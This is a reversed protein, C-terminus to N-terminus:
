VFEPLIDKDVSLIYRYIIVTIVIEPDKDAFETLNDCAKRAFLGICGLIYRLSIVFVEVSKNARGTNHIVSLVPSNIEVNM